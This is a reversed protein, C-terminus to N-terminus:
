ETFRTGDTFRFVGCEALRPCLVYASALDKVGTNYTGSEAEKRAGNGGAYKTAGIRGDRGDETYGVDADTRRKLLNCLLIFNNLIPVTLPTPNRLKPVNLLPHPIIVTTYSKPSSCSLWLM